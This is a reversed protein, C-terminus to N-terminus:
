VIEWDAQEYGPLRRITLARIMKCIAFAESKEWDPTECAQYEYGDLAKLIQVGTYHAASAIRRYTYGGVETRGNYRYAVSRANEAFLINGAAKPEFVKSEGNFYYHPTYRDPLVYGVLVNIHKNSVIYASM